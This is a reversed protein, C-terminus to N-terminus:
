EYDRRLTEIESTQVGCDAAYKLAVEILETMEKTDFKSSGIFCKYAVLKIGKETVTSNPLEQVYRFQGDLIKKAEPIAALIVTKINSLKLLDVYIKEVDETLRAGSMQVAITEIIAWLLRNQRLSRSEKYLKATVEIAEMKEIERVFLNAAYNEKAVFCVVTNKDKDIYSFVQSALIKSM